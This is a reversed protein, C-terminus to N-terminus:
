SNPANPKFSRRVEELEVGSGQNIAAAVRVTEAPSLNGSLVMAGGFETAAINPAFLVRDGLLVALQRTPCNVSATFCEVAIRDLDVASADTLTLVITPEGGSDVADATAAVLVVEPGVLLVQGSPDVLRDAGEIDTKPDESDVALVPRVRIVPAAATEFVFDAEAGLTASTIVATLSRDDLTVSWSGSTFGFQELRDDAFATADAASTNEGVTAVITLTGFV